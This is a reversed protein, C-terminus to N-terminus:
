TNQSETTTQRFAIQKKLPEKIQKSIDGNLGLKKPTKVGSISEDLNQKIKEKLKNPKM